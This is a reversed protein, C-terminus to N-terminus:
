ASAGCRPRGQVTPPSADGFGRTVTRSVVSPSATLAAGHVSTPSTGQFPARKASYRSLPGPAPGAPAFRGCGSGSRAAPCSAPSRSPPQRGM